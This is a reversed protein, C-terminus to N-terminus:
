RGGRTRVAGDGERPVRLSRPYPRVSSGPQGALARREHLTDRVRTERAQCPDSRRRVGLVSTGLVPSGRDSGRMEAGRTIRPPTLLRAGRGVPDDDVLARGPRAACRRPRCPPRKAGRRDRRSGASLPRLVLPRRSRTGARGGSENSPRHVGDVSFPTPVEPTGVISDTKYPRALSRLLPRHSRALPSSM